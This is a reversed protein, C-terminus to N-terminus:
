ILGSEPLLVAVVHAAIRKLFFPKVRVSFFRFCDPSRTMPHLLLCRLLLLERQDRRIVTIESGSDAIVAHELWRLKEANIRTV